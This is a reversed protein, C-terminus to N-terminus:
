SGYFYSNWLNLNDLAVALVEKENIGAEDLKELRQIELEEVQEASLGDEFVPQESEQM